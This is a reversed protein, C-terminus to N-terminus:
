TTKTEHTTGRLEHATIEGRALSVLLNQGRTHATEATLRLAAATSKFLQDLAIRVEPSTTRVTGIGPYDTDISPLREKVKWTDARDLNKLEPCLVEVLRYFAETLEPLEVGAASFKADEPSVRFAHDLNDYNTPIEGYQRFAEHHRGVFKREEILALYWVAQLRTLSTSGQYSIYCVQVKNKNLAYASAKYYRGCGSSGMSENITKDAEWRQLHANLRQAVQETTLDALTDPKPKM